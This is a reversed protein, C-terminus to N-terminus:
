KSYIWMGLEESIKQVAQAESLSNDVLLDARARLLTHVESEVPHSEAALNKERGRTLVRQTRLSEATTIYVLKVDSPRTIEQLTDIAGVHRIGDMVLNEGSVWGAM